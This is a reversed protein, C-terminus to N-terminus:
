RLANDHKTKPELTIVVKGRAHREELYRIAEPVESLRYRTHRHGTNGQRGEHSRAHHEPGTQETEGSVHGAEPERVTVVCASHDFPGFSRDDGSRERRRGHHM